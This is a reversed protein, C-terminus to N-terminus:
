SKSPPILSVIRIFKLSTTKFERWEVIWKMNVVGNKGKRKVEFTGTETRVSIGEQSWSAILAARAKANLYSDVRTFLALTQDMIRTSAQSITRPPRRLVAVRTTKRGRSMTKLQPSAVPRPRPAQQRRRTSPPTTESSPSKYGRDSTKGRAM